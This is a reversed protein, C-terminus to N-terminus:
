RVVILVGRYCYGLLRDVRPHEMRQVVAAHLDFEFFQEHRIIDSTEVQMREFEELSGPDQIASKCLREPSASDAQRHRIPTEEEASAITVAILFASAGLLGVLRHM